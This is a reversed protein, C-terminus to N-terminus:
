ESINCASDMMTTDKKLVIVQRDAIKKIQKEWGVFRWRFTHYKWFYKWLDEVLEQCWKLRWRAPLRIRLPEMKRKHAYRKRIHDCLSVKRRSFDCKINSCGKSCGCNSLLSYERDYHSSKTWWKNVAIRYKLHPGYISQVVMEVHVSNVGICRFLSMDVMILFIDM